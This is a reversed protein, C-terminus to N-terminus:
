YEASMWIIALRFGTTQGREEGCTASAGTEDRDGIAIGAV